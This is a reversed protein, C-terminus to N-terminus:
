VPISPPRLWLIPNEKTRIKSSYGDPLGKRAPLRKLRTGPTKQLLGCRFWVWEINGELWPNKVSRRAARLSAGWSFACRRPNLRMGGRVMSVHSEKLGKRGGEESGEADGLGAVLHAAAGGPEQEPQDGQNHQCDTGAADYNEM